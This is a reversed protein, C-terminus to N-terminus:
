VVEILTWSRNSLRLTTPLDPLDFDDIPVFRPDAETGSLLDYALHWSDQCEALNAPDELCRRAFESLFYESFRAPLFPGGYLDLQLGARGALTTLDCLPIREWGPTGPACSTLAGEDFVGPWDGIDFFPVDGQALFTTWRNPHGQVRAAVTQSVFGGM